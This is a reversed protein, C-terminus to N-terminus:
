LWKIIDCILSYLGYLGLFFWGIVTWTAVKDFMNFEKKDEQVIIKKEKCRKCGM